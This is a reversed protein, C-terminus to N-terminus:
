WLKRTTRTLLLIVAGFPQILSPALRKLCGASTTVFRGTQCAPCKVPQRGARGRGAM